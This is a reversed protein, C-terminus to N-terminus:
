GGGISGDQERLDELAALDFLPGDPGRLDQVVMPWIRAAALALGLALRGSGPTSSVELVVHSRPPAGLAATVRELEEADLEGLDRSPPAIWVHREGDSLRAMFGPQPQAVGGLNHVLDLLADDSVDRSSILDVTASM